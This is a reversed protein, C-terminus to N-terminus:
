HITLHTGDIDFVALAGGTMVPMRGLRDSYWQVAEDFRKVFYFVNGVPGLSMQEAM